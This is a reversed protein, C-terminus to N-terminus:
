TGDDDDEACAPVYAVLGLVGAVDLAGRRRLYRAAAQHQERSAQPISSLVAYSEALPVHIDTM